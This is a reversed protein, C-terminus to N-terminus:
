QGQRQATERAVFEEESPRDLPLKRWWWKFLVSVVICAILLATYIAVFTWHQGHLLMAPGFGWAFVEPPTTLAGTLATDNLTKSRNDKDVIRLLIMGIAFVGTTYGYVFISREFWSGRNMAPGFYLLNIVVIFIGFVLLMLLPVADMVIVSLNISAIGFFVLYDTATGSIRSIVDEDIYKGIGTAKCIYFLALAILFALLYTPLDLGTSSYIWNYALQGLGSALLLLALHFALPDLAVSSITNKGMSERDKEPILGTRMDDSIDSFDKIYKTWGRKTAIKIFILGGLVGTLIGATAFTMAIDNADAFGLRSFTSGVAAATGHGGFFGAALLIGFGYNIEPFLNSIVVISFIIPISFQLATALMKFSLYSGVRNIESRINKRDISFGALGVGAFVIITLTGAYSSISDSFFVPNEIGAKQLLGVVNLVQDGAILGLFGAIMSSPIFFRQIFRVKARILQGLLIFLSAFSFDMLFDTVSM